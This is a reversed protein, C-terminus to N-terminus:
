CKEKILDADDVSFVFFFMNQFEWPIIYFELWLSFLRGELLVIEILFINM